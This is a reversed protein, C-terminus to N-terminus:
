MAKEQNTTSHRLVLHKGEELGVYLNEKLEMKDCTIKYTFIFVERGDISEKKTETLEFNNRKGSAQTLQEYKLKRSKLPESENFEPSYYESTKEYEENQIHTLLAEATAKAKTEDIIFGSCSIITVVSIFSFIKKM